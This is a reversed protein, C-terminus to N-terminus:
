YGEVGNENLWEKLMIIRDELVHIRNRCYEIESKCNSVCRIIKRVKVDNNVINLLM